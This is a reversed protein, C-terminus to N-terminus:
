NSSRLATKGEEHYKDILYKMKVGERLVEKIGPTAGFAAKPDALEYIGSTPDKYAGDGFVLIEIEKGTLKQIQEQLLCVFPEAEITCAQPPLQLVHQEWAAGM